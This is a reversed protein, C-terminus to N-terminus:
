NNLPELLKVKEEYKIELLILQNIQLIQQSQSLQQMLCNGKGLYSLIQNALLRSATFLNDFCFSERDGLDAEKQCKKRTTNIIGLSIM